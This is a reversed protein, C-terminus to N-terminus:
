LKLIDQDSVEVYYMTTNINKHGLLKQIIQIPVKEQSKRTAYTHRLSHVSFNIEHKKAFADAHYQYGRNTLNFLTGKFINEKAYNLIRKHLVSSIPVIRNAQNKSELVEIYYKNNIEIFNEEKLQKLESLRIGSELLVKFALKIHEDKNNIFDLFLNEQRESLPKPKKRSKRVYLSARVPNFSVVDINILYEYFFKLTSLRINITSEKYDQMIDLYFMMNSGKINKFDIDFQNCFSYFYRLNIEYNIISNRAYNRNKLYKLYNEILLRLEAM